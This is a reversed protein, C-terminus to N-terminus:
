DLTQARSELSRGFKKTPLYETNKVILKLGFMELRDCCPQVQRELDDKDECSLMVDGANLLTWKGIKQRRRLSM